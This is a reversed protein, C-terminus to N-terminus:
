DAHKIIYIPNIRYGSYPKSEILKGKLKLHYKANQNIEGITKRIVENSQCETELKITETNKYQHTLSKLIRLRLKQEQMRYCFKEKPERYLDGNKTFFLIIKQKPPKKRFRALAKEAAKESIIEILEANTSFSPRPPPIKIIQGDSFLKNFKLISAFQEKIQIVIQPLGSYNIRDNIQKALEKFQKRAPEALEEFRKKAEKQYEPTKIYERGTMFLARRLQEPQIIIKPKIQKHRKFM